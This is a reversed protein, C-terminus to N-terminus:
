YAGPYPGGFRGVLGDLGGADSWAGFDGHHTETWVAKIGAAEFRDRVEIASSHSQNVITMLRVPTKASKILTLVELDIGSYGIVLLDINPAAELRGRIWQEHRPPLVLRDQEGEPLALAPYTQGTLSQNIRELSSGPPVCRMYQEGLFPEETPPSPRGSTPFEYVWNVSGHLKILSWNKDRSIYDDFDNLPHHDALRLDLMVDYNLTMFCVEPLRLLREILRDYRFAQRYHAESVAHLLRQLYPPVAYALRRQHEFESNRLDHLVRELGLADDRTREDAILRGAQHALANEQLLAGYEEEDFLDVTLPPRLSGWNDAAGRSAGAGLVVVLPVAAEFGAAHM